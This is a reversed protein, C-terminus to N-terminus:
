KSEDTYWLRVTSNIADRAFSDESDFWRINKQKTFWTMQKKAYQHEHIQWQLTAEEKRKESPSNMYEKWEKYGLTRMAPLEWGYGRSILTRIEEIVGAGLRNTVRKNIKERLIDM